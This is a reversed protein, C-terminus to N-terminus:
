KDVQITNKNIKINSERWYIQKFFLLSHIYHILILYDIIFEFFISKLGENTQLIRSRIKKSFIIKFLETLFLIILFKIGLAISFILLIIPLFTPIVLIFINLFSINEKLFQNTFVMWRKMLRFYAKINSIETVIKCPITSQLLSINNRLYLKAIEYDDCLKFKISNFADLKKLTETKAIYFMGNITKPNKFLAIPFYSFLANANVFAGVLDSFLINADRYYPIGTILCDQKQLITYGKALSDTNIVTDDDLVITYKNAYPLAMNLKFVKPNVNASLNEVEIINVQRSYEAYDHFLKQIIKHAVLDNKDIVWIFNAGNLNHLNEALNNELFVDGSLIPQIISFENKYNVPLESSKVINAKRFYFITSIIKIFVLFVYIILSVYFYYKM